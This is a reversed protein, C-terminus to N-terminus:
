AFAINEWVTFIIIFDDSFSIILYTFNFFL